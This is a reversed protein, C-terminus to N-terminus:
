ADARVAIRRPLAESAKPLTLRLVGNKMTARIGDRDIAESLHFVRHYERALEAGYIRRYGEPASPEAKASITLVNKEVTLDVTEQSAGPLEAVVLFGDKSERVDVRPVHVVRSARERRDTAVAGNTTQVAPESSHNM